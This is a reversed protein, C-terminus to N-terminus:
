RSCIQGAGSLCDDRWRRIRVDELLLLGAVNFERDPHGDRGTV